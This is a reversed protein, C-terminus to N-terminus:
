MLYMEQTAQNVTTDAFNCEFSHNHKLMLYEEKISVIYTFTGLNFWALQRRKATSLSVHKGRKAFRKVEGFTKRRGHQEPNFPPSSLM